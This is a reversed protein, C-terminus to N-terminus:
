ILLTVISLLRHVFPKRTWSNNHNLQARDRHWYLESQTTHWKNNHNNNKSPKGTQPKLTCQRGVAKRPPWHRWSPNHGPSGLVVLHRSHVLWTSNMDTACRVGDSHCSLTETIFLVWEPIRSILNKGSKLAHKLTRFLDSICYVTETSYGDLMKRKFIKQWEKQNSGFHPVPKITM